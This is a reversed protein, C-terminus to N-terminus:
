RSSGTKKVPRRWGAVTSQKARAVTLAEPPADETIVSGAGITAGKGVTVPAVLVSNSGISADDEIVTRHKAAGDYNATITGAGVNVRAGVQADGVYALHNAKAGAGLRSAKVEVFNGVHVQEDLAAGPRLRAYPGVRCRAGITAGELQSFPAIVSGPGVSVDRLVCYAGIAVDDALKVEGEFVCGIDISVDRGCSLAGRIDIRAPDAISTGAKMLAEALRAQVLREIAALQARDNVGLAAAADEAVHAEVPVGAAVALAVVDTLYFEGQANDDKLAGVFRALLGTPAALTGTYIEDLAREAPSADREEVIARLAGGAARVVRGLGSPDTAHATLLALKGTAAVAALAAYTAAPILPCDGNAVLTVGDSPLAELALRAADGTGRPPDQTVFALDPAALAARVEEGGHGVVVVLARPALTRVADLAHLVLPKGALPHLAKPRASRMRKGQGAAMVVIQLPSATM